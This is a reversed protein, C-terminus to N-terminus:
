ADPAESIAASLGTAFGTAIAGKRFFEAEGSSQWKALESKITRQNQLLELMARNIEDQDSSPASIAFDYDEFYGDIAAKSPYVVPCGGLLAEIFVMGFSEKHSLMAFAAANNMEQQLDTSSKAGKLAISRSRSTGVQQEAEAFDADAGGGFIDLAFGDVHGDIFDAARVLAPLNKLQWNQLHFASVIRNPTEKPEIIADEATICPLMITLGHRAGFRREMHDYAWPAFPFAVAADHFITRYLSGLDRRVNTIHRDSNGQISIGFPIGLNEAVRRAAIGEISLKHGMVLRPRLGSQVADEAIRDGVLEMAQKLFVGRSPAQYTWSAIGDQRDIQTIARSGIAFPSVDLRNLSYVQHDFQENTAHILREIAATKGPEFADPFDTSIHLITM